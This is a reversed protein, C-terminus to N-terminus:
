CIFLSDVFRDFLFGPTPSVVAGGGRSCFGTSAIGELDDVLNLHSAFSKRLNKRIPCHHCRLAVMGGDHAAMGLTLKPFSVLRM